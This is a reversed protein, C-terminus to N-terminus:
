GLRGVARMPDCIGSKAICDGSKQFLFSTINRLVDGVDFLVTREVCRNIKRDNSASLWCFAAHHDLIAAKKQRGFSYRVVMIAEILDMRLCVDGMPLVTVTCPQSRERRVDLPPKENRCM